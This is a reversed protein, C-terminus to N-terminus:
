CEQGIDLRRFEELSPDAIRHLRGSRSLTLFADANAAWCLGITDNADDARVPTVAFGGPLSRRPGALAARHERSDPMPVDALPKPRPRSRTVFEPVGAGPDGPGLREVPLPPPPQMFGRHFTPGGERSLAMAVLGAGLAGVVLFIAAGIALGTRLGANTDVRKNTPAAAAPRRVRVVPIVVDDIPGTAAAVVPPEEPPANVPAESPPASVPATEPTRFPMLCHPCRVVQGLMTEPVRAAAQCRPCTVSISM